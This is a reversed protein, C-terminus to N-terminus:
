NEKEKKDWEYNSGHDCERCPCPASCKRCGLDAQECFGLIEPNNAHKCDKCDHEYCVIAFAKMLEDYDKRLKDREARLETLELTAKNHFQTLYEYEPQFVEIKKAM